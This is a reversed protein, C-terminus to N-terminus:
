LKKTYDQDPTPHVTDPPLSQHDGFPSLIGRPPQPATVNTGISSENSSHQTQREFGERPTTPSVRSIYARQHHNYPYHPDYVSPPPSEIYLAELDTLNAPRTHKAVIWFAHIM